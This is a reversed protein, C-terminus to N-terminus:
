RRLAVQRTDRASWPRAGRPAGLGAGAAPLGGGAAIQDLVSEALDSVLGDVWSSQGIIREAMVLGRRIKVVVSDHFRVGPFSFQAFTEKRSLTALVWCKRRALRTLPGPKGCM